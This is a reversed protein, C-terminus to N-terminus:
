VKVCHDFSLASTGVTPTVEPRQKAPLVASSAQQSTIMAVSSEVIAIPPGAIISPPPSPMYVGSSTPGIDKWTGFPTTSM